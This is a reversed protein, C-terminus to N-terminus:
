EFRLDDDDEYHELFEDDDEYMDEEPLENGCFPCYIPDEEFDDAVSIDFYADCDDCECEIITDRQNPM